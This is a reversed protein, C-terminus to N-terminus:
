DQVGHIGLVPQSIAALDAPETWGDPLPDYIAGRRLVPGALKGRHTPCSTRIALEDDWSGAAAGADLADTEAVPLGALVLADVDRFRGSAALGAAFLAGTDSGVLVLPRPSPPSAETAAAAEAEAVAVARSETLAADAAPDSVVHVRYGDSAVRRGFREYVEPREGRGPFVILAGRPGIGEPETWSIVHAQQDLLTM